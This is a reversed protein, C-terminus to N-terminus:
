KLASANVVNVVVVVLVYRMVVLCSVHIMQLMVIAHNASGDLIVNVFVVTVHVMVVVYLEVLDIVPSIIVNVTHAM